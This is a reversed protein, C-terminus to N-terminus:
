GKARRDLFEPLTPYPEALEVEVAASPTQYIDIHTERTSSPNRSTISSNGNQAVTASSADRRHEEPPVQANEQHFEDHRNAHRQRYRRAREADSLPERKPPPLLMQHHPTREPWNSRPLIREADDTVRWTLRWETAQKGRWAGVKMPRVLDADDLERAARSISSLSCGIEYAAERVGLVILGNNSGNYRSGIEILLARAIPGLGHYSTSRKVHHPLQFFPPGIKGGGKLRRAKASYRPM